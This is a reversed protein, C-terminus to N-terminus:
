RRALRADLSWAGGGEILLYLSGLLMCFDARSEHLMSWFGYHPLKPLHFSWVDHESIWLRM